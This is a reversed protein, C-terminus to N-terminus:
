YYVIKRHTESLIGNIDKYTSIIWNKNEDYKHHTEATIIEKENKITCVTWDKNENFQYSFNSITQRKWRPHFTTEQIKLGDLNYKYDSKSFLLTDHYYVKYEILNTDKDYLAYTGASIYDDINLNISKNQSQFFCFGILSSTDNQTIFFEKITNKLSDYKCHRENTLQNNEYYNVQILQNKSNYLFEEFVSNSKEYDDYSEISKLKDKEYSYYTLYDLTSDKGSFILEKEIFGKESFYYISTGSHTKEQTDSNVRYSTSISIKVKGKLDYDALTYPPLLPNKFSSILFILLILFPLKKM